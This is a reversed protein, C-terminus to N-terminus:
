SPDPGTVAPGPGADEVNQFISAVEGARNIGAITREPNELQTMPTVSDLAQCGFFSVAYLLAAVSRSM